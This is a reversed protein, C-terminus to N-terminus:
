AHRLRGGHGRRIEDLTTRRLIKGDCFVERLADPRDDHLPVTEYGNGSAVLKLKGAKSNKGPDSAPRKCVDRTQGGVDAWNCKLAFGLTDRNCDQLLGGGSGFIINEVAWGARAVADLLMPLSRRSIGDGQLLRVHRPLVKYGKGNVSFGFREGLVRLCEPLMKLPDGSDPRIVLRRGPNANIEDRLKGGWVSRCANVIDWSDSVVSVTGEPYRELIHRYADAERERGWPTITSHEAAPVSAGPAKAGYHEVLLRMAPINDTGDFNVLHAAGGLAAAEVSASGRFGFDHLMRPLSGSMGTMGIKEGLLSRMARSITAVTCPYWLQVLLTEVHNTLWPVAEDTNQVTLLVNSSPVVTGEPVARISIPLRGEHSDLIHEWGDRNFVDTDFHWRCLEEAEDISRETVRTGALYKDMIYQLGFFCAHDYEGGARSEFYSGVYRTGPPYMKWHTLKYSDTNLIINDNSTRSDPM